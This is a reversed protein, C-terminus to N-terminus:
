TTRVVFRDVLVVGVALLVVVATVRYDSSVYLGPTPPRWWVPYLWFSAYGDAYVRLGDLLLSALGGFVLWGYARRRDDRFWVAIAASIVLVGAVTGIPGYSFPVGVLAEIMSDDAVMGVKGLDPVAAGGMAVPLWRRDIAVRWRLVTLVIFPVLVHTLLDAM